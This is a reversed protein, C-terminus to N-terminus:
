DADLHQAFPGDTVFRRLSVAFAAAEDPPWSALGATIRASLRERLIRVTTEGTRTLVLLTARRDCPDAERRVLGAEELRSARRTVGSRDLGVEPALDAASCPGTRELGSLVPYTLEDMAEGMGATLARYLDQRTSRQLLVGLADAIEHGVQTEM